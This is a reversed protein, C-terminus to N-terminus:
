RPFMDRLLSVYGKFSSIDYDNYKYSNAQDFYFFANKYDAISDYLKGLLGNISLLDEENVAPKALANKLKTIADDQHNNRLAYKGYSINISPNNPYQQILDQTLKWGKEIEGTKEYLAVLMSKTPVHHHDKKLIEEALEEARTFDGNKYIAFAHKYLLNINGPMYDIALQYNGIAREVQHSSLQKDALAEYLKVILQVAEHNNSNLALARSCSDIAQEINGQSKYLLALTLHAGDYDPDISISMLVDKFAKYSQGLEGYLAGRMLYAEDCNKNDEIIQNYISIAKDYNQTAVMLDASDLLKEINM